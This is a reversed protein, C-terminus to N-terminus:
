IFVMAKATEQVHMKLRLVITIFLIKSMVLAEEAFSAM